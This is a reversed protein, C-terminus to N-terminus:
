LQRLEGRLYPPYQYAGYRQAATMERRIEAHHLERYSEVANKIRGPVLYDEVDAMLAISM